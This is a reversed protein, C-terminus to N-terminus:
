WVKGLVQKETKWSPLLLLVCKKDDNLMKEKFNNLLFCLCVSIVRERTRERKRETESERERGSGRSVSVSLPVSFKRPVCGISSTGTGSGAVKMRVLQNAGFAVM